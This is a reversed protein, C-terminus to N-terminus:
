LVCDFRSLNIAAGGSGGGVAVILSNGSPSGAVALQGSSQSEVKTKAVVTGWPEQVQVVVASPEGATGTRYAVALREGLATAAFELPHDPSASVQGTGVIASQSAGFLAWQIPAAAGGSAERWVVYMGDPHRATALAVVPMPRDMGAVPAVPKDKDKTVRSIDIRTPPGADSPTWCGSAPSSKGNSHAVLWGDGHRTGDAVLKVPSCGLKFTFPNSGSSDAIGAYLESAETHWGVLHAGPAGGIVFAPTGPAFPSLPGSGGDAANIAPSFFLFGQYEALAGFQGGTSSGVRFGGLPLANSNTLYTPSLLGNPPWSAWPELTAHRLEAHAPTGAVRKFAVVIQEGEDSASALAPGSDTQFGSKEVAVAPQVRTLGSCDGSGGDGGLGGLGSGGGTAAGSGTGAAGSAGEADLLASRSGCALTIVSATLIAVCESPIM